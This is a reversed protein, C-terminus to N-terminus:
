IVSSTLTKMFASANSINMIYRTYGTLRRLSDTAPIMTGTFGAWRKLRIALFYEIRFEPTVGLVGSILRFCSEQYEAISAIDQEAKTEQGYHFIYHETEFRKM